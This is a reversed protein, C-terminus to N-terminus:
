ALRSDSWEVDPECRRTPAGELVAEPKQFEKGFRDLRRVESEGAGRPGCPGRGHV